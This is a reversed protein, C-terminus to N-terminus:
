RNRSDSVLAREAKVYKSLGRPDTLKNLSMSAAICTPCLSKGGRSLIIDFQCSKKAEV